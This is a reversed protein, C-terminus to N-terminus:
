VFNTKDIVVSNIPRGNSLLGLGSDRFSLSSEVTLGQLFFILYKLYEWELLSSPLSNFWLLHFGLPAFM